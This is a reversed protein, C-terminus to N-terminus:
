PWLDRPFTNSADIQAARPAIRDASFRATTERIADASEGLGFELSPGSQLTM